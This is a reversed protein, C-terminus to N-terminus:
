FRSSDESITLDSVYYSDGDADDGAPQGTAERAGAASVAAASSDSVGASKALPAVTLAVGAAMVAAASHDANGADESSSTEPISSASPAPGGLRHSEAGGGTASRPQQRARYAALIDSATRSLLKSADVQSVPAAPAQESRSDQRLLSAAAGFASGGPMSPQASSTAISQQGPFSPAFPPPSSELVEAQQLQRQARLANHHQWDAQQNGLGFLAVAAHGASPIAAASAAAAKRLTPSEDGSSSDDGAADMGAGAAQCGGAVLTGVARQLQAAAGVRSAVAQQQLKSAERRLSEETLSAAALRGEARQGWQETDRCAAQLAAALLGEAGAAALAAQQQLDAVERAATALELRLEEAHRLVRDHAKLSQPTPPLGAAPTASRLDLGTAAGKFSGGCAPM